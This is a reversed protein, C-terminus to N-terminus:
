SVKENTQKLLAWLIKGCDVSAKSHINLHGKATNM